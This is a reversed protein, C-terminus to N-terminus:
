NLRLNAVVSGNIKEVYYAARVNKFRKLLYEARRKDDVKFTYHYNDNEGKLAYFSVFSKKKM